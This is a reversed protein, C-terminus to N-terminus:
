HNGNFGDGWEPQPCKGTSVSVQISCSPSFNYKVAAGVRDGLEQMTRFRYPMPKNMISKRGYVYAEWHENFRYGLVASLGADTYRDHAWNANSMWGGVALSLKGSLPMAYMMSLEQAFGAGKPAGKGFAAFVSAGLNVNLGKHLQWTDMGWWTDYPYSMLSPVQGRMNLVPLHISDNPLMEMGSYTRRSYPQAMSEVPLSCEAGRGMDILSDAAPPAIQGQRKDTAATHGRDEAIQAMALLPMTCVLYILIFIKKKMTAFITNIAKNQM